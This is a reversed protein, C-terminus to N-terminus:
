CKGQRRCITPLAYEDKGLTVPEKGQIATVNNYDDVGVVWVPSKGMVKRVDPEDKLSEGYLEKMRLDKM